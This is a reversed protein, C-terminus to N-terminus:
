EAAHAAEPRVYKAGRQKYAHTSFLVDYPIGEIGSAEVLKAIEAMVVERKRGHIMCFLNYPWEPLRRPRQYCLTVAEVAAFINGVREVQEDPIDWVVMANETFGIKRHRVILGFRSVVGKDYLSSIAEIVQEESLGHAEGIKQYPRSCIPLGDALAEAVVSETANLVM